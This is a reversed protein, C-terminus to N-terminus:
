FRSDIVEINYSSRYWCKKKLCIGSNSIYGHSSNLRTGKRDGPDRGERGARLVIDVLAAAGAALRPARSRVLAAAEGALRAGGVRDSSRRTPFSHLNRHNGSCKFFFMCEM